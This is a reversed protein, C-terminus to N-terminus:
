QLRCYYQIFKSPNVFDESALASEVGIIRKVMMPKFMSTLKAMSMDLRIVGKSRAKWEVHLLKLLLLFRCAISYVVNFMALTYSVIDLVM